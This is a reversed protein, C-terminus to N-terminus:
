KVLHLKISHIQTGDTFQAIYVGSPVPSGHHDMGVWIAEHSGYEVVGEVLTVIHTGVISIIDLRINTPAAVEYHIKTSPNFPNPYNQHLWFAGIPETNHDELHSTTGDKLCRISYKLSKFYSSTTCESNTNSCYKQVAQPPGAASSTWFIAYRGLLRFVSNPTEYEGAPVASFGSSNTAGTNPADWLEDTTKMEGGAVQAGGLFTTLTDWEADTPIHWGIPAVGQVGPSTENHMAANWSYLRGYVEVNGEDDQYAAVGEIPTGDSYHLSKLNERLWTQSGIQLTHYVNGDYDTVVEQSFLMVPVALFLLVLTSMDMNSFGFGYGASWRNTLHIMRLDM